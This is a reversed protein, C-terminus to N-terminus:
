PADQVGHPGCAKPGGGPWGTEALYKYKGLEAVAIEITHMGDYGSLDVNAIVWDTLQALLPQVEYWQRWDRQYAYVDPEILPTVSLDLYCDPSIYISWAVRGHPKPSPSTDPSPPGGKGPHIIWGGCVQKIAEVLEDRSAAEETWPVAILDLDRQMSGHIALAYGKERAVQCLLPYLAAFAPAITPQKM